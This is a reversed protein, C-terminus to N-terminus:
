GCPFCLDFGLSAVVCSNSHRLHFLHVMGAPSPASCLSMIGLPIYFHVKKPASPFSNPLKRLFNIYVWGTFGHNYGLPNVWPFHFGIGMCCM